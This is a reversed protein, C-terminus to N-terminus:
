ALGTSGFGGGGRSTKSIDESKSFTAHFVPSFVLQAIRDGKRIFFDENSTNFLIVKVEGRFDSDITGPSNLVTIGSKAALGSRSRVQGEFGFPIELKLGTGVVSRQGARVVSDSSAKLDCGASGATQYEPAEYGDEAIYNVWLRNVVSADAM